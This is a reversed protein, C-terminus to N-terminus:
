ILVDISFANYIIFDIFNARPFFFSCMSIRFDAGSKVSVKCMAANFNIPGWVRVEGAGGWGFM